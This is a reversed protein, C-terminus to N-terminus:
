FPENQFAVTSVMLLTGNVGIMDRFIPFYLTRTYAVQVVVDQGAKGPVFHTDSMQNNNDTKVATSINAFDDGSVVNYKVAPCSMLMKLKSCLADEFPGPLGGGSQVSGTRILRSAVRTAQDLSVQMIMTLGLDMIFCVIMTFVLGLIGFEVAAVGRRDGALRQLAGPPRLADITRDRGRMETGVRMTGICMRPSSDSPLKLGVRRACCAACFLEPISLRLNSGKDEPLM